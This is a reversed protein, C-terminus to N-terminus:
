PSCPSVGALALDIVDGIRYVPNDNDTHFAPNLKGRTHWQNIRKRDIQVGLVEGVGNAIEAATAYREMLMRKLWDRRDNVDYTVDCPKCYVERAKERGFLEAKCYDCPGIYIRPPPRDVVRRARAVAARLEDLHLPTRRDRRLEDLEALLVARAIMGQRARLRYGRAIAWRTLTASLATAADSAGPRYGLPRERSGTVPAGPTTIADQRTATVELDALLEPVITLDARIQGVCLECIEANDLTPTGCRPCPTEAHQM